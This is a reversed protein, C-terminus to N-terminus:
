DPVEVTVQPESFTHIQNGLTITNPMTRGAMLLGLVLQPFNLSAAMSSFNQRMYPHASLLAMPALESIRDTWNPHNEINSLQYNVIITSKLTGALEIGDVESELNVVYTIKFNILNDNFGATLDNSFNARTVPKGNFREAVLDSASIQLLALDPLLIALDETAMIVLRDGLRIGM